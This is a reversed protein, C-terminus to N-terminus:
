GIDYKLDFRSLGLVRITAAIKAAVTEPSGVFLAGDAIEMEYQRPSPPSFGREKSVLDLVAKYQPGYASRAEEDTRAVFGLSHQGVPLLPRGYQALARHYLEVYPAFRSPHGGIIALM